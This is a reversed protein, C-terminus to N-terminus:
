LNMYLLWRMVLGNLSDTTCFKCLIFNRHFTFFFFYISLIVKSFLSYLDNQKPVMHSKDSAALSEKKIKQLFHQLSQLKVFGICKCFSNLLCPWNSCLSSISSSSLQSHPIMLNSESSVTLLSQFCVACNFLM